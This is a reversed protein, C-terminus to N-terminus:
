KYYFKIRYKLHWLNNEDLGGVISTNHNIRYTAEYQSNKINYLDFETNLYIKNSMQKGLILKLEINESGEINKSPSGGSTLRFEDLASYRTINKEIVNELYNSLFNGAQKYDSFGDPDGFTLIDLIEQQTYEESNFILTPNDTFGIFSVDVPDGEIKTQAHLDIYPTNDIPALIITGYTNRFVNGQNDYFKGDIINAKGSFNFKEDGIKTISIDGDFLLNINETEVKIGDKIPVHINYSIIRNTYLKPVEYTSEYGLNTITFNYPNPIFEGSIYLTDRGTLDIDATGSGHFLDYSSTISIDKGSLNLAFKPNFFETLDMSGSVNLNNQKKIDESSFFNKFDSIFNEDEKFLSGTMKNIILQNNIISMSGEINRIPEEIPDLYLSGNQIIIWGSRIPKELTGSIELVIDYNKSTDNQLQDSTLSDLIDFYEPLFEVNNTVGTFIFDIPEKSIDVRNEIILNLDLPIFGIGSYKGYKTQLSLNLGLKNEKFEFIGSLTDEMNIKDFGPHSIDMRSIIEPKAITGTIDISGTMFGRSEYGWPLYRNFPEIDVNKCNFKLNLKDDDQFLEGQNSLGINFWGDGNINGLYTDLKFDSLLFRRNRYSASLILQDFQIDDIAGNLIRLYNASYIPNPNLQNNNSVIGITASDILGNIRFSRGIISYLNNLELNQINGSIKYHNEGKYEGDYFIIKSTDLASSQRDFPQLNLDVLSVEIETFDFCGEEEHIHFPQFIIKNQKLIGTFNNVIIDGSPKQKASFQIKDGMTSIANFNLSDWNDNSLDVYFKLSDWNYSNYRWGYLNGYTEGAFQANTIKGSINGIFGSFKNKLLLGESLNIDASFENLATNKIWSFNMDGYLNSLGYEKLMINESIDSINVIGTIKFNDTGSLSDIKIKGIYWNSNISINESSVVQDKNTFKGAMSAIEISEILSNNLKIEGEIQDFLHASKLNVSGSIFTNNSLKFDDIITNLEWSKELIKINGTSSIFQGDVFLSATDIEITNNDFNVNILIDTIKKNLFDLDCKLYGVSINNKNDIEAELNYINIWSSDTTSLSLKEIQVTGSSKHLDKINIKGNAKGSFWSSNSTLNTFVIENNNILINGSPVEMIDNFLPSDIQLSKIELEVGDNIDVWLEGNLNYMEDMVVILGNDIKLSSIEINFISFAQKERDKVDGLMFKEYNYYPSHVSIESLAITGFAIRSLDPNIYIEKASFIITSDKFYNVDSLKFGTIFNGNINGINLERGLSNPLNNKIIIEIDDIFYQPRFLFIFGIIVVFSSLLLFLPLFWKGVKSLKRM